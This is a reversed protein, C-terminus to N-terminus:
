SYVQRVSNTEASNSLQCSVSLINISTKNNVINNLFLIEETEIKEELNKSFQGSAIKTYNKKKIRIGNQRMLNNIGSM